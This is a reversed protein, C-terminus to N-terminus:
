EKEQGREATVTVKGARSSALVRVVWCGEGIM